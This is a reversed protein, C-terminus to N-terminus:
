GPFLRVFFCTITNTFKISSKVKLATDHSVSPDNKQRRTWTDQVFQRFEERHRALQTPGTLPRRSASTVATMFAALLPARGEGTELSGHYFEQNSQAKPCHLFTTM